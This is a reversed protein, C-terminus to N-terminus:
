VRRPFILNTIYRAIWETVKCKEVEARLRAVSSVRSLTCNTVLFFAKLTLLKLSLSSLPELSSIYNLVPSIDSTSKDKPIPPNLRFAARVAQSVLPHEGIPKGHFGHHFKSIASRILNITSYSAGSEFKHRLFKVILAPPSSYPDSNREICFDNFQKFAYAYGKSTGSSVHNALFRMDNQDLNHGNLCNQYHVGFDSSSSSPGPLVTDVKRVHEDIDFPLSAAEYSAGGVNGSGFEVVDIVAMSTSDPYGNHRGAEGEALSESDNPSSPLPLM